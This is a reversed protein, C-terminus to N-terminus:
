RVLKAKHDAMILCQQGKVLVPREREGPLNALLGEVGTEPRPKTMMKESEKGLQSHGRGHTGQACESTQGTGRSRERQRSAQSQHTCSEGASLM